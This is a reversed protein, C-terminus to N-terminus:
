SRPPSHATSSRSSAPLLPDPETWLADIAQQRIATPNVSRHLPTCAKEAVPSGLHVQPSRTLQDPPRHKRSGEAAVRQCVGEAGAEETPVRADRNAVEAVASATLSM